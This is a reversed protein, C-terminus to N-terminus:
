RFHLKHSKSSVNKVVINKTYESGAEWGQWVLQQVVELGHIIHKDSQVPSIGTPHLEGTKRESQHHSEVYPIQPALDATPM